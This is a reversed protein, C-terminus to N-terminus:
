SPELNYRREAIRYATRSDCFCFLHGHASGALQQNRHAPKSRLDYPVCIIVCAARRGGGLYVTVRASVAAVPLLVAEVFYIGRDRGNRRSGLVRHALAGGGITPVVDVGTKQYGTRTGLNM